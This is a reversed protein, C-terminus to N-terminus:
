DDVIIIERPLVVQSLIANLAREVTDEANFTTMIAAYDSM